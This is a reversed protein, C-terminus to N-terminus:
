GENVNNDVIPVEGSELVAAMHALDLRSAPLYRGAAHRASLLAAHRSAAAVTQRQRFRAATYAALFVDGAGTPDVSIDIPAPRYPHPRGGRVHICGGTPGATVVWEAIDFRDMLTEIKSGYADLIAGLEEQDAKVIRAAKLAAALHESVAPVIRGQENKRVLGQVDLVVLTDVGQLRAFVQAEIDEPHLPGLHVGDVNKLVADVQQQRIPAALAPTEQFRRNGCIRNVFRTTRPTAGNLVQIGEATLPTLIATEAPAVNCVVWTSVGHRRYTLGAYSAVGGLKLFTRDGIVNHDVSVSGVVAVSRLTKFPEDDM